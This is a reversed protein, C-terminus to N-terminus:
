VDFLNTRWQMCYVCKLDHTNRLSVFVRWFLPNATVTGRFWQFYPKFNFFFVGWFPVHLLGQVHVGFIVIPLIIFERKWIIKHHGRSNGPCLGRNSVLQGCVCPLSPRSRETIPPLYICFDHWLFACSVFIYVAVVYYECCGQSM